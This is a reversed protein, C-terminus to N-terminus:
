SLGGGVRPIETITLIEVSEGGALSVDSNLVAQVGAQGSTSAVISTQIGKRYKYKLGAAGSLNVVEYKVDYIQPAAM